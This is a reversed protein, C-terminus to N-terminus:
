SKKAAAAAAMRERMARFGEVTKEPAPSTAAVSPREAVAALWGALRDCGSAGCEGVLDVGGFAQLVPGLRTVMPGCHGEALSFEEGLLFPGGAKGHRRLFADCARLAYQVDERVAARAAESEAQLAKFILPGLTKEYTDMFLRVIARENAAAPLLRQGQGPYADELYQLIIASEILKVDGDELVPVKSSDKPCVSISSYLENFAAPKNQLDVIELDFELGKELAGIWARQAYPCTESVWLKFSSAALVASAM